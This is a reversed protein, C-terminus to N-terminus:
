SMGTMRLTLNFRGRELGCGAPATGPLVRPVGHFMYRSPGGFVILDGSVLRLDEYPAHRHQPNGARFVATDGVSLSVVPEPSREDKDQHMGMRAEPSYYNVLAVDPSYSGAWAALAAEDLDPWSPANARSFAEAVARRGLAVLWEPVPLPRMPAGDPGSPAQQSLGRSDWAWGLSTMRVSMPHGAVLPSRPPVPGRGWEQFRDVMWRQQHETLWGPLHVVGPLVERAPRPLDKEPFLADTM